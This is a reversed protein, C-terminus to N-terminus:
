SMWVNMAFRSDEFANSACTVPLVEHMLHRPFFVVSNHAPELLHVNGQEDYLALDGGEFRRPQAHLYYIGSLRRQWNPGGAYADRHKAFAGGDNYAQPLLEIHLAELDTGFRRQLMPVVAEFRRLFEASPVLPGAMRYFTPRGAANCGRPRFERRRDMLDGLLREAEYSPLFTSIRWYPAERRGSAGGLLASRVRIPWSV